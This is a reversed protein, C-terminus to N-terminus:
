TRTSLIFLQPVEEFGSNSLNLEARNDISSYRLLYNSRRRRFWIIIKEIVSEFWATIKEM